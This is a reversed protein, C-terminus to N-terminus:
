AFVKDLSLESFKVLSRYEMTTCMSYNESEFGAEAAAAVPNLGNVLVVGVQNPEVRIGCLTSGGTGTAVLGGVGINKLKAMVEDATPRCIAPIERFTALIRGQGTRAVENVSTMRARLFVESPDLSCGAYEIIEVFRLPQNNKIQLIASFKSAMPVGSKLLVGNLAVSCVTALGIKGEPVTVEGLSEKEFAVAVRDSICIGAEFAPRM